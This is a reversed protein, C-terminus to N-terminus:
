NRKNKNLARHAVLFATLGGALGLCIDSITDLVYNRAYFTQSVFEQVEWLLAVVLVVSFITLGSRLVSDNRRMLVSIAASGVIVGGWFHFVLDLWWITWYLQLSVAVLHLIILAFASLLSIIFVQSRKM